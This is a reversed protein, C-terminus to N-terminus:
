GQVPYPFRVTTCTGNSADVDITGELQAILAGILTSGFSNEKVKTPDYGVGNDKVTLVLQDNEQTLVVGLEGPHGEPFAYKLSNTILENIILGLPVLTDVDINLDMINKKLTLLTTDISYTKFLEDTLSDLYDKVSMSTLNDKNYLSKHILAMSRVRTKGENIAELANADKISKGQLTLLSSVMQLNNKVRHHIERLLIDKEDHSKQIEEKQENIQRRSRYLFFSLLSIFGLALGGGILGNKQYQIQKQQQAKEKNLAAIEQKRREAKYITEMEELHYVHSKNQISKNLKNYAEYASVAKNGLGKSKYYKYAIYSLKRNFYPVSVIPDSEKFKDLQAEFSRRDMSPAEKEFRFLAVSRKLVDDKNAEKEYQDLRELDKPDLKLGKQLRVDLKNILSLLRLTRNKFTGSLEDAKDFYYLASDLQGEYELAAGLANYGSVKSISTKYVDSLAIADRASEKAKISNGLKLYINSISKIFNSRKYEDRKGRLYNMGELTASLAKELSDVVIYAAGLDYMNYPLSSSDQLEKDIAISRKRYIICSDMERKKYHLNATFTYLDSRDKQTLNKLTRLYKIEEEIKDISNNSGYISLLASGVFFEADKGMKKAHERIKKYVLVAEDKKWVHLLAKAHDMLAVLYISDSPNGKDYGEMIAPYLSESKKFDRKKHHGRAEQHLKSITQSQGFLVSAGLVFLLITWLRM